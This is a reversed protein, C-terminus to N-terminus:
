WLASNKLTEKSLRTFNVKRTLYDALKEIEEIYDESNEKYVNLKGLLVSYLNVGVSTEFVAAVYALLANNNNKYDSIMDKILIQLHRIDVCRRVMNTPLLNYPCDGFTIVPKGLIAAELAVSGTIVIVAEADKILARAELSPEALKVRPINLMKKYTSLPRKGVMWPHEKIVLFTDVPLSIALMRIIEIQNIFPRGYVLLSVEPETHLPFFVYKIDKLDIERIYQNYFFKKIHAAIRPNRWASFYFSKLPDMVHNDLFAISKRYKLYDRIKSIILNIRTLKLFNVKLAPKDSPKIVGEYRGHESRVRQIYQKAELEFKSKGGDMLRHYEKALEPSPDNLLESFAVRNAIRTPRLNLVRIGRSKAFLYTIYDIFTVCIFSVVLDPKLKEFLDEVQEIGRQLIYLLEDDTFRRRYDQTYTCNLGMFLRRDSVIAGFLGAKDGLLEEYYALKQMNPKEFPRSTIEWEKLIEHGECEFTPKELLWREYALSDALVFGIKKTKLTEKCAISLSYFLKLTESQSCFLINM